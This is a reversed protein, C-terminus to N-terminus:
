ALERSSTVPLTSWSLAVAAGGLSAAIEFAEGDGPLALSVSVGDELAFLEIAPGDVFIGISRTARDALAVPERRRWDFPAGGVRTVTVAGSAGDLAITATARASSLTISLAANGGIEIRGCGARPVQGCPEVFREALGAFPRMALSPGAARRALALTRPLSISGGAFGPWPMERATAWSSLWGVCAAREHPWGARTSTMPAYFDPGLDLRQGEAPARPDPTFRAGNFDGVWGRAACEAGENRRDVTSVILAWRGDVEALLPVEWMVGPPHFPGIVGVDRWVRRDESAFLRLRSPPEDRWGHWDCPEALLLRWGDDFRFVFPDRRNRRPAGLTPLAIAGSWTAGHDASTRAVQQELGAEHLTHIAELGGGTAIVSGSYAWADAEPAIAVGDQRWVLLDPSSFRAWGTARFDPADARHQALLRYAGDAYYLANPDNLWEGPPPAAHFALTM